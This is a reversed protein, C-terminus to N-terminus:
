SVIILVIVFFLIVVGFMLQNKNFGKIRNVSNSTLKKGLETMMGRMIILVAIGAIIIIIGAQKKGRTYIIIGIIVLLVSILYAIYEFM